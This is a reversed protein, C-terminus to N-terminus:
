FPFDYFPIDYFVPGMNTLVTYALHARRLQELQHLRLLMALDHNFANCSLGINAETMDLNINNCSKPISMYKERFGAIQKDAETQDLITFEEQNVETPSVIQSSTQYSACSKYRNITYTAMYHKIIGHETKYYLELTGNQNNNESSAPEQPSIGQKKLADEKLVQDLHPPTSSQVAM